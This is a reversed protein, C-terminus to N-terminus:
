CLKPIKGTYNNRNLGAALLCPKPNSAEFSELFNGSCFRAHEDHSFSLPKCRAATLSMETPEPRVLSTADNFLPQFFSNHWM